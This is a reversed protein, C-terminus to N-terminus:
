KGKVCFLKVDYYWINLLSKEPQGCLVFSQKHVSCKSLEGKGRGALVYYKRTLLNITLGKEQLSLTM